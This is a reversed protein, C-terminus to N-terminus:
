FEYNLTFSANNSKEIFFDISVGIQKYQINIPSYMPKNIKGVGYGVGLLTANIDEHGKIEFLYAKGNVNIGNNVYTLGINPNIKFNIDDNAYLNNIFSLLIIIILKKM